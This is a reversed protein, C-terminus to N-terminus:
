FLLLYYIFDTLYENNCIISNIQQNSSSADKFTMGVKGISSGICVCMVTNKPLVRSVELGKKSIKKTSNTIYKNDGLDAPAIFDFEEPQYYKEQNTKPTTGTICKGLEKIEKLEWSSNPLEIEHNNIM